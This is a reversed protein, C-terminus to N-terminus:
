TRNKPAYNTIIITIGVLFCFVIDAIYTPHRSPSLENAFSSVLIVIGVAISLFALLRSTLYHKSPNLLCVFFMLGLCGFTASAMKLWYGLLPQYEIEQAGM